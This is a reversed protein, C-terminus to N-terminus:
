GDPRIVIGSKPPFLFDESEDTDSSVHHLHLENKWTSGSRPTDTCGRTWLESRSQLRIAKQAEEEPEQRSVYVRLDHFKCRCTEAGQVLFLSGAGM